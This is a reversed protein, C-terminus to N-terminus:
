GTQRELWAVIGDLSRFDAVSRCAIHPHRSQLMRALAAGPGLELAVTMGAEVAADMCDNWAITENLQRSLTDVARAKSTVAEAGIGSLVPCVQRHFPAALLADAFPAVAPAMLPTHSAIGVPLRQLRAGAASVAQDLSDLTAALGGAICTDLGTVIAIAFGAATALSRVRELQLGSIAVLAQPATVAGTMLSARTAALSVADPADLAGAVGYASLEGVSYGAVLGPQAVRDRLAAWMALTAGVIAPQAVRNDFMNAPDTGALGCADLLAAAGAHTRALDFMAAHQGGQGPCLLLLRASV